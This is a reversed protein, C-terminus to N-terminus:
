SSGIQEQIIDAKEMLARLVNIMTIKLRKGSLQLIQAVDSVPDSEQKIEKSQTEEYRKTHKMIKQQFTLM